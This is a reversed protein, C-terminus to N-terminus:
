RRELLVTKKAQRFFWVSFETSETETPSFHVAHWAGLLRRWLQHHVTVVASVYWEGRVTSAGVSKHGDVNLLCWHIDILAIKEVHLFETICRQKWTLCWETQSDRQQWWDCLLLIYHFIPQSSSGRNGYWWGFHAESTTPWCLLIPPMTKLVARTIM